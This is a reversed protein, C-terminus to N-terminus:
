LELRMFDVYIINYRYVAVFPTAVDIRQVQLYRYATSQAGIRM